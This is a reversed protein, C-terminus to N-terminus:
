GQRTPITSTIAIEAFGVGLQTKSDVSGAGGNVNYSLTYQDQTTNIELYVDDIGVARYTGNDYTALVWGHTQLNDYDSLSLARYQYGNKTVSAYKDSNTGEWLANNSKYPFMTSNGGCDLYTTPSSKLIGHCLSVTYSLPCNDSIHVRRYYITIDTICSKDLNELQSFLCRIAHCRSKQGTYGATYATAADNYSRPGSQLTLNSESTGYWQQMTTFHYQHTWAM